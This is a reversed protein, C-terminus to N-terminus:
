VDVEKSNRSKLLDRKQAKDGTVQTLIQFAYQICTALNCYIEKTEIALEGLEKAELCEKDVKLKNVLPMIYESTEGLKVINEDVILLKGSIGKISELVLNKSELEKLLLDTYRIGIDTLHYLKELLDMVSVLERITAPDPFTEFDLSGHNYDSYISDWLSRYIASMIGRTDAIRGCVPMYRKASYKKGSITRAEIIEGKFIAYTGESDNHVLPGKFLVSASIRDIIDVPVLSKCKMNACPIVYDCPYCDIEPVVSYNTSYSYPGTEYINSAGISVCVVPVDLATAIHLTGTDNSVLLDARTLLAALQKVNTKGTFDYINKNISASIIEDALFKEKASGLIIFRINPDRVSLRGILQAFNVPPWRKSIRSAGPQLAVIKDSSAIGLSTLENNVWAKDAISVHMYLSTDKDEVGCIGRFIDVIHKTNMGKKLVNAVFYKAWEGRVTYYGDSSRTLGYKQGANVLYTIYSSALSFTLNYVIGYNRESFENVLDKLKGVSEVLSGKRQLLNDLIEGSDLTFLNNIFPNAELVNSFSKRVLVDIQADPYKQRLGFLVPTTQLIDGMRALQIVLIKLENKKACM